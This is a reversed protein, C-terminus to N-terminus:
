FELLVAKEYASVLSDCASLVNAFNPKRTSNWREKKMKMVVMPSFMIKPMMTSVKESSRLRLTFM